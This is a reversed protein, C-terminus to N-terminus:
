TSKISHGLEHTVALLRLTDALEIWESVGRVTSQSPEPNKLMRRASTIRKANGSARADALRYARVLRRYRHFGRHDLEIRIAERTPWDGRKSWMRGTKQWGSPINANSRQYHYLGRAAHKSVYQFWGVANDIAKATQSLPSPHYADAVKLWAQILDLPGVHRSEPFWVAGHLHPVGRRQWETLTHSRIMDLRYLRQLYTNILRQWEESRLPCLRLTLTLAFGDGTLGSEDVSYLFRTNSRISSQSWGVVEGRKARTHDNRGPACGATAGHPYLNLVPM